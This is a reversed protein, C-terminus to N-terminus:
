SLTRGPNSQQQAQAVDNQAQDQQQLNQRGKEGIAQGQPSDQFAQAIQGIKQMDGNSSLLSQVMERTSSNPTIANSSHKNSTKARQSDGSGRM